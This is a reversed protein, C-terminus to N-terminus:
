NIEYSISVNVEVKNEGTEIQPTSSEVSSPAKKLGYDYYLPQPNNGNEVFNTIKVLKVGLEKSLEKAKQKAEDIAQKRADQQLKDQDDISFRLGGTQNAGNSTAGQIIDGIKSLDRIKTQLSQTVEYGVLRRTKDPRPWIDGQASVWEYRPNINFSTTKLDKEQIGQKKMFDIIANMKKSNQEVATAVNKDENRVSFTTLAIDPKAYVTGQGRVTIVNKKIVDQGIYKGQKIKNQTAVITFVTLSILFVSFLFILVFSGKHRYNHLVNSTNDM